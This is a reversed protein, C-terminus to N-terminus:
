ILFCAPSVLYPFFFKGNCYEKKSDVFAIRQMTHMAITKKEKRFIRSGCSKTKSRCPPEGRGEEERDGDAFIQSVMFVVSCQGFSVSSSLLCPLSLDLKSLPDKWVWRLCLRRNVNLELVWLDSVSLPAHIWSGVQMADYLKKKKRPMMMQAMAAEDDAESAGSTVKVKKGDGRELDEKVVGIASAELTASFPVGAAERGLDEVFAKEQAALQVVLMGGDIMVGNTGLILIAEFM